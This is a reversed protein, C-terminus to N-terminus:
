GMMRKPCPIFIFFDKYRRMVLQQLRNSATLAFKELNIQKELAQMQQELQAKMKIIGKERQSASMSSRLGRKRYPIVLLMKFLIAIRARIILWNVNGLAALITISVGPFIFCVFLCVFHSISSRYEQYKNESKRIRMREVKETQLVIICPSTNLLPPNVCLPCFGSCISHSTNLICYCM